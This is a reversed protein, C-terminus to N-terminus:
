RLRKFVPRAAAPKDAASLSDNSISFILNTTFNLNNRDVTGVEIEVMQDVTPYAGLAECGDGLYGDNNRDSGAIIMYRGPQVNKFVYDYSGGSARVDYQDKLEM